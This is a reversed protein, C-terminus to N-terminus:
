GVLRLRLGFKEPEVITLDGLEARSGAHAEGTGRLQVAVRPGAVDEVRDLRAPERRTRILDLLNPQDEVPHLTVRLPDTGFDEPLLLTELSREAGTRDRVVVKAQSHRADSLELTFEARDMEPGVQRRM